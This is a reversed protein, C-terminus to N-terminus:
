LVATSEVQRDRVPLLELCLVAPPFDGAVIGKFSDSYPVDVVSVLRHDRPIRVRSRLLRYGPQPKGYFPEGVPINRKQDLQSGIRHRIYRGRTRALLILRAAIHDLDHAVGLHASGCRSSNIIRKFKYFM